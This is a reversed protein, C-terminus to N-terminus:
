RQVPPSLRGAVLTLTIWEGDPVTAPVRPSRTKATRPQLWYSGTDLPVRFVGDDRLKVTRVVRDGRGVALWVPTRTAACAASRELVLGCPVVRGKVGSHSGGHGLGTATGGAVISAVLVIAAM